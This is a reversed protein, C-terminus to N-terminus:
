FRSKIDSNSYTKRKSRIEKGFSYSFGLTVSLPSYDNNFYMRMGDNSISVGKVNGAFLNSVGLKMNLRGKFCSYALGCSMSFRGDVTHVVNKDKGSYTATVYGTFNRHRDFIFRLNGMAFAKLVHESSLSYRSDATTESYFLEGFVYARLWSLKTFYLSLDVGCGEKDYANQWQTNSSGDAANM